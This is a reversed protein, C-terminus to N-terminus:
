RSPAKGHEPIPKRLDYCYVANGSRYILRGDAIVPPICDPVGPTWHVPENYTVANLVKMKGPTADVCAFGTGGVIRNNSFTFYYELRHGGLARRRRLRPM